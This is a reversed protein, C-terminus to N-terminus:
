PNCYLTPPRVCLATKEAARRGRPRMQQEAREPQVLGALRCTHGLHSAPYECKRCGGDTLAPREKEKENEEEDDEAEEEQSQLPAMPSNAIIKFM